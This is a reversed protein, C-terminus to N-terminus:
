FPMHTPWLSGVIRDVNERVLLRFEDWVVCSLLAGLTDLSHMILGSDLDTQIWDINEVFNVTFQDCLSTEFLEEPTDLYLLNHVVEFLQMLMLRSVCLHCFFVRKAVMMVVEYIISGYM